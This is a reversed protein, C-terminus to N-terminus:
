CGMGQAGMLGKMSFDEATVKEPRDIDDLNKKKWFAKVADAFRHSFIEVDEDALAAFCLRFYQWGSKTMIDKTPSFVNGPAVLVLFPKMTLWVWLAQALEPGSFKSSLPHTSYDMHVWVFMGGLPWEFSYMQTKKVVSWESKTADTMQVLNTGDDLITCMTQMRREYTGRLGELWRIWGGMEWGEKKGASQGQRHPGMLLEAIMSQVFGSPQQTSTEAIRLIREIIAPQGTIWGLRCGPAVTKSFTDLRIVRGDTDVSLYSPVLSDLFDFGSSKASMKNSPHYKQRAEAQLRALASPYQLYWYPEDEIIVVDYKSCLKYIAKRREVSLTGGTPNQGITVTYMLHPRKGKEEDWNSLVDELGGPGDPNMGELDMKVPVVALGRPEATQIANMYAYEEVLIGQREKIDNKGDIWANSLAEVSKSFGDTNGCSMVIEPGGEYPVSPHLNDRTFQRLWSFLAPYGQAQGYQLATTLDIKLLPSPEDSAKPVSISSQPVPLPKTTATKTTDTVRATGASNNLSLQSVSPPDVPDNPTPTFRQPLAVKAELTDYPFFGANPLGVNTEDTYNYGFV